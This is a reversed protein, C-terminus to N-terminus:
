SSLTRANMTFRPILKVLTGTLGGGGNDVSVNKKSSRTHHKM